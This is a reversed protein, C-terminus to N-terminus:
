NKGPKTRRVGKPDIYPSGPPLEDYDSKNRIQKAKSAEPGAQNGGGILTLVREIQANKAALEAIDKLALTGNGMSRKNQKTWLVLIERLDAADRAATQPNVFFTDPNPLLGKVLKQEYTPFRPNTILAVKAIQNLKRLLGRNYTTDPFLSATDFVGGVVADVAAKLMSWPGTGKAAADVMNKPQGAPVDDGPVPPESVAGLAKGGGALNRKGTAINVLWINGFQDPPSPRVRNEAIDQADNRTFGRGMLQQTRRATESPKVQDMTEAIVARFASARKHNYTPGLKTVFDDRVKGKMVDLAMAYMAPRQEPTGSAVWDLVRAVKAGELALQKRQEDNQKSLGDAIRTALEAGRIPALGMMEKPDRGGGGVYERLRNGREAKSQAERLNLKALENQQDFQVDMKTDRQGQYYNRIDFQRINASPDYFAAM